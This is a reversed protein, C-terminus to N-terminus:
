SAAMARAMIQAVVESKANAYDQVYAWSQAALRQKTTEYLALDEPNAILWDRFALMRGIEECGEAFVHLNVAPDALKLLRHEYWDPERIRLAYGLQELAPLWAAEDAPDPVALVIDVVPKASLGPVSTSGAHHIARAAPGLAARMGAALRTFAQPWAPDYPALDIAANIPEAKAPADTM